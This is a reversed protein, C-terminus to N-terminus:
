ASGPPVSEGLTDALDDQVPTIFRNRWSRFRQQHKGRAANM